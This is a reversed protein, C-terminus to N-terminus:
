VCRSTYLLCIQVWNGTLSRPDNAEHRWVRFGNGDYRALGDTSAIWIFGASDRDLANVSGTPLGERPGLVRLHPSEPVQASAGAGAMAGLLGLMLWCAVIWRRM